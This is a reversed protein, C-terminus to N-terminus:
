GPSVVYSITQIAAGTTANAITITGSLTPYGPPSENLVGFGVKDGNVVMFPGFARSLYDVGNKQYYPIGLGNLTMSLSIPGSLGAMTVINTQGQRAGIINSWAAGTSPSSNGVAVQKAAAILLLDVGSM